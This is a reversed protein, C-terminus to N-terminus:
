ECIFTYSKMMIIFHFAPSHNFSYLKLHVSSNPIVHLHISPNNISGTITIVIISISRMTKLIQAINSISVMRNIGPGKWLYPKQYQEIRLPEETDRFGSGIACLSLLQRPSGMLSHYSWMTCGHTTEAPRFDGTLKTPSNVRGRLKSTHPRKYSLSKYIAGLWCIQPRFHASEKTKIKM